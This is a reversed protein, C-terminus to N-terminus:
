SFAMHHFTENDITTMITTHKTIPSYAPPRQKQVQSLTM